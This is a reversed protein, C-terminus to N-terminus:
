TRRAPQPRVTLIQQEFQSARNRALNLIRSPRIPFVSWNALLYRPLTGTAGRPLADAVDWRAAMERLRTPSFFVIQPTRWRDAYHQADKLVQLYADGFTEIFADHLVRRAHPSRRAARALELLQDLTM